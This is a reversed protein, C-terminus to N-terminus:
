LGWSGWVKGVRTHEMELPEAGASRHPMAKSTPLESDGEEEEAAAGEHM